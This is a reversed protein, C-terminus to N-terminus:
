AACCNIAPNQKGQTQFGRGLDENQLETTELHTHTFLTLLSVEQAMVQGHWGHRQCIGAAFHWTRSSCWGPQSLPVSRSPQLPLSLQCSHSWGTCVSSHAKHTQAGQYEESGFAKQHGFIQEAPHLLWFTSVM